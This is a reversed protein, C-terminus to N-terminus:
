EHDGLIQVQFTAAQATAFTLRIIQPGWLPFIMTTANDPIDTLAKNTGDILDYANLTAWVETGGEQTTPDLSEITFATDTTLAPATVIIARAGPPLRFGATSTDAAATTLTLYKLSGYRAM